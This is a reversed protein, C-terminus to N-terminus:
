AWFIIAINAIFITILIGQRGLASGHDFGFGHSEQINM